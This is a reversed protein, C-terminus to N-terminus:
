VTELANITGNQFDIISIQVSQFDRKIKSDRNEIRQWKLRRSFHSGPL